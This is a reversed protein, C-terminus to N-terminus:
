SHYSHNKRFHLFHKWDLKWKFHIETTWFITGSDRYSEWCKRPVLRGRIATLGRSNSGKFKMLIKRVSTTPGFLPFLMSFCRPIRSKRCFCGFLLLQTVIIGKTFNALEIMQLKWSFDQFLNFHYRVLLNSNQSAQVPSHPWVVNVAASSKTTSFAAHHENFTSGQPNTSHTRQSAILFSASSAMGVKWTSIYMWCSALGKQTALANCTLIDSAVSITNHKELGKHQWFGERQLISFSPFRVFCVLIVSDSM